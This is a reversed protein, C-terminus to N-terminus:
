AKGAKGKAWEVADSLSSFQGSNGGPWRVYYKPSGFTSTEKVVEYKDHKGYITEVVEKAM